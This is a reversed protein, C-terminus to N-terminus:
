STRSLAGPPLSVSYPRRMDAAPMEYEAEITYVYALIRSRTITWRQPFLPIVRRSFDQHVRSARVDDRLADALIALALQQAPGTNGDGNGWAFGTSSHKRLDLRPTLLWKEAGERVTVQLPGEGCYFREAM